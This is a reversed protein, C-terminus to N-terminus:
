RGTAEFPAPDQDLAVLLEDWREDGVNIGATNISNENFSMDGDSSMDILCDVPTSGSLTGHVSYMAYAGDSQLIKAKLNSGVAVLIRKLDRAVLVRDPRKSADIKAAIQRLSKSLDSPKM